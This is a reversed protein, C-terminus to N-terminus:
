NVAPRISISKLQAPERGVLNLKHTGAALKFSKPVFQDQEPSGNGRWSITRNEFGDTVEIDWIMVPDEPNADVNVFYSNSGEDQANVVASILYNGANTVTFVFVAKGGDALETTDPQSIIGNTLVLPATVTADSAPVTLVVPSPNAPATKEVVDTGSNTEQAILPIGLLCALVTTLYPKM